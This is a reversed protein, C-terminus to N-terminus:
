STDCSEDTGSCELDIWCFLGDCVADVADSYEKKSPAILTANNDVCFQKADAQTKADTATCFKYGDIIASETGNNCTPDAPALTEDNMMCLAKYSGARSVTPHWGGDPLRWM